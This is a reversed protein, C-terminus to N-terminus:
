LVGAYSSEALIQEPKAVKKRRTVEADKAEKRTGNRTRGLEDVYDVKALDDFDDHDQLM